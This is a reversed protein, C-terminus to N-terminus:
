THIRICAWCSHLPLARGDGTSCHPTRVQIPLAPVVPLSDTVDLDIKHEFKADMSFNWDDSSSTCLTDSGDDPVPVEMLFDHFEDDGSSSGAAVGTECDDFLDFCGFIPDDMDDDHFDRCIAFCDPTMFNRIPQKGQRPKCYSGKAHRQVFSLIHATMVAWLASSAVTCGTPWM